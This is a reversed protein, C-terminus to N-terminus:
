DEAFLRGFLSKSEIQEPAPAEPLDKLKTPKGSYGPFSELGLAFEKMEEYSPAAAIGSKKSNVKSNWLKSSNSWTKLETEKWIEKYNKYDPFDCWICFYGGGQSGEPVPRYKSASSAFSAPDWNKYINEANVSWYKNNMIDGGRDTRLVYYCWLSICHYVTHGQKAFHEGSNDHGNWYAIEISDKLKVHQDDNIDIDDNFVRVTFDKAELREATSNLYSIFADSSSGKKIGLEEKAYKAWHDLFNWRNSYSMSEGGLNFNYWGIIEDGGIDFKTCGLSGFLDAYEDLLVNIFARAHEKTIDIGISTSDRTDGNNSFHNAISGFGKTKSDYKKGDCTFSFKKHDAVYDAYREVIYTNHGPVDFSPIVDMHYKHATEVIEAIDDKNLSDLGSTLWPFADSDLRYGEAESFHLIITNYKQFSSRRIYNEIWEKPFYKRGCDLFVTRERFEPADKIEACDLSVSGDEAKKGSKKEHAIQLLTTLGYWIGDDSCAELNIRDSIELNYAQDIDPTVVGAKFHDRDTMSIVIDGAKSDGERGWVVALPKDSPIGDAAFRSDMLRVTEILREPPQKKSVIYFRTNGNLEFKGEKPDYRRTLAEAYTDAGAKLVAKRDEDDSDPLDEETVAVIDGSDAYAYSEEEAESGNQDYLGVALEESLYLGSNGTLASVQIVGQSAFLLAAVVLSLCRAAIGVGRSGTPRYEFKNRHNNNRIM